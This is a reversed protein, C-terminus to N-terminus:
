PDRPLGGRPGDPPTGRKVPVLWPDGPQQGEIQSEILQAQNEPDPDPWTIVIGRHFQGSRHLRLFDGRNRTLLIRHQDAADTLVQHDPWGRNDRGAERITHVDHGRRRLAEVLDHPFDEDAYFRAV